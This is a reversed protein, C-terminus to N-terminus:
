ARTRSGSHHDQHPEDDAGRRPAHLTMIVTLIASITLTAVSLYGTGPPTDWDAETFNVMVIFEAITHIGGFATTGWLVVVLRLLRRLDLDPHWVPIALFAVAAALEITLSLLMLAGAAAVEAISMAGALVLTALGPLAAVVAATTGPRRRLGYVLTLWALGALATALVYLGSEWPGQDGDMRRLCADSFGPGVYDYYRNIISGSLMSGRCPLWYRYTSWGAAVASALMLGAALLWPLRQESV